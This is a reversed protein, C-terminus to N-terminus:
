NEIVGSDSRSATEACSLRVIKGGYFTPRNMRLELGPKCGESITASIKEGGEGDNSFTNWYGTCEITGTKDKACLVQGSMYNDSVYGHLGRWTKYISLGGVFTSDHSYGRCELVPKEESARAGQAAQASAACALLLLPLVLFKLFDKM